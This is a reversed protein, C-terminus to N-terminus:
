SKRMYIPSKKSLSSRKQLMSFTYIFHLLSNHKVLISSITNRAEYAVDLVCTWLDKYLEQEVNRFLSRIFELDEKVLGIEEKIFAVSSTKFNLLNNLNRILLNMCLLRNSMFFCSSDRAELYVHKLDKKLLTM